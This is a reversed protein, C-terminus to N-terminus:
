ESYGVLTVIGIANLENNWVVGFDVAKAVDRLKYFNNGDINYAECEVPSNNVYLTANSVAATKDSGNGAELEGGAETYKEGLSLTISQKDEDWVTDFQKDTDNLVYALDRLKFYNYGDINYAELTKEVGNVMVSSKSYKANVTKVPVNPKTQNQTDNEIHTEAYATKLTDYAGQRNNLLDKSSYYINGSVNDYKGCIELHSGIEGAIVDKYLGEGIYLEVDTGEVQKDWWKVVEEYPATSHNTEWYIQPVIYDVWGNEIWELTDAYGNYYTQSGKFDVTNKYIGAPSVGFEVDNDGYMEVTEHVKRILSNIDERRQDAEPGDGDGNTLPYEDPYFYDDLHIGDVDYNVLIEEVTDCIFDQVEELAPNLYLANNHSILWDPHKKAANKDALVSVDTGSTTVRYPNLWAHIKMGRKHTEEVMYELPDYQPYGDQSGTLVDSWPNIESNYLADNKPRIQVIVTNLGAAKYRDLKESFEAKQASVNGVNSVSPFDINYVSAVWVGRMEEEAAQVPMAIGGFAMSLTLMFGIIKKM